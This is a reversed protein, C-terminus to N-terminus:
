RYIEFNSERTRQSFTEAVDKIILFDGQVYNLFVLQHMCERTYLPEYLCMTRFLAHFLSELLLYLM